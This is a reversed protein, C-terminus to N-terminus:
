YDGCSCVGDKFHHFRNSDRVIIERETILSMYKTANHCDGCVRLNKFITIPSKPPTSIIGYTIASRESHSMLIHEKEDDEVDQLVFSFDPVYGLIKMKSTLERLERDIEDCKPHSQKGTYFVDVKNNLLISSWGPTKRLGRGRALSRVKHVGEWRGFNAYMNSLLVYYGVNQPDVEFLRNSAYKGLEVNGHIRCSNVLAGWVSGDPEVPMNQIFDYAMKLHGSRGFVDVMCCYHKLSPKIGFKEQMLNFCWQAGSVLGSHSCASLLALFTIHDPHVGEALMERFLNLAEEGHGHVGHCSLIANWPVSCKRPIQDFLSMAEDLKGCKGYMDILCTVVYVDLHLCTKIIHGHIRMGQQLAGIHSYAPLISVWTGQSPIIEKCDEMMGYAEIAESALGNQAYGTILTNWSVVDKIPLGEFVTRASDLAGIKAYMDVIANGVVVGEVFWGKRMVFGHISKSNQHDNLHSVASALSVLTLYDPRVGAQQMKNFFLYATVLHGSQEYAAIISNWSVIDRVVMQDFVKKSHGLRGFKAYMYILANSVFLDFELGHKIVYLHILQGSLIDDLQACAPLISAITVADMRVGELKMEDVVDLAESYNGNHCYGSIMANWLGNDRVPTDDFLKRAAQVMGFRTYMHILSAAVFVDWEFGLKLILCHMRKGDLLNRCAKVVPPFTYFDPRLGSAVFFQHFCDIADLFLGKHVYTSVMSNWSYVDKRRIQDFTRRGLLVDGFYAYLNVLKSSLFSDSFKGSIVLLRHLCKVHNETSCFRFLAEFDIQQLLPLANYQPIPEELGDFGRIYGNRLSSGAASSFSQHNPQLLSRTKCVHKRKCNPVLRSLRLIM